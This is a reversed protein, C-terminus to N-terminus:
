RYSTFKVGKERLFERITDPHVFFAQGPADRRIFSAIGVLCGHSDFAGGGSNGPAVLAVIHVYTGTFTEEEDNEKEVKRVRSVHGPMYNWGLGVTHGVISVEEGVSPVKQVVPASFHKPHEGIAKLIALDKDRDVALVTAQHDTIPNGFDAYEDEVFYNMTLELLQGDTYNPVMGLMAAIFRDKPTPLAAIFRTQAAGELCHRATLITDDNIWVGSCIIGSEGDVYEVLAITASKNRQALPANLTSAHQCCGMLAMTLCLFLLAVYRNM